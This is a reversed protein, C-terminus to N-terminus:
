LDREKKFEVKPKPEEKPVPKLENCLALGSLKAAKAIKDFAALFEDADKETEVVVVSHSAVDTKVITVCAWKAFASLPAAFAVLAFLCYILRTV